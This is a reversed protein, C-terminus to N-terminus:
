KFVSSCSAARVADVPVMAAASAYPHATTPQYAAQVLSTSCVLAALDSECQTAAAMSPHITGAGEAAVIAAFDVYAGAKLGLAEDFGSTTALGTECSAETLGDTACKVLIACVSRLITQSATAAMPAPAASVTTPPVKGEDTNSATPNGAGTGGCGLSVTFVLVLLISTKM